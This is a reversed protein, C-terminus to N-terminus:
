SSVFPALSLSVFVGFRNKSSSGRSLHIHMSTL